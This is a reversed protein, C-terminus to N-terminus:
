AEENRIKGIQNTTRVIMVLAMGLILISMGAGTAASMMQRFAADRDAGFQTLMATELSFMSVLAATLNIVKAASIAPNEHKRFKIVNVVATIVVYFTYLAMVYIFMGPYEFGSNKSIVLVVMGTLAWDLIMLIVGCSRCIKLESIQNKQRRERKRVHYLLSFRMVALLIYYVALTGFWVSQYRIGSFLKIGAYFLNIFLSPYLSIEARFTKESLYREVMPIGLVKKVTPHNNMKECIWRVLSVTGTITIIMAYASLVYSFYEIAPLVTEETLVYFVLIFAPIAIVLTPVTPLCFIKKLTKWVKQKDM